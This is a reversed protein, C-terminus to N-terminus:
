KATMVVPAPSASPSQRSLKRQARLGILALLVTISSYWFVTPVLGFPSALQGAIIVPVGFTLYSVLYISGVVGARQHAAALPFILRLSATFSAGFGVGAVAQGTIMIALSETYVGAIIGIAGVISAL